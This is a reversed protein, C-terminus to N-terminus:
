NEDIKVGFYDESVTTCQNEKDRHLTYTKAVYAQIKELDNETTIETNTSLLITQHALDPFYNELIADRSEKDMVGMVTDIMVPPNYDGLEYLVKLLVQMLTQKAGANLQSLYIENGKIHYMKFTIEDSNGSSLEVRGIVGSYVVLNKNLQECMMREISSKKSRLLTESLNKFFEPLKCLLDYSPDPIQPIDYDYTAIKKKLIEIEEGKQRKLEKLENIRASNKEYAEIFSYDKGNLMQEYNQLTERQKPLDKIEQNLRYRQEDLAIFPNGLASNVLDKLRAMDRATLFSFKDDVGNGQEQKQKMARILEPVDVEEDMTYREEILKVLSQTFSEIQADTFQNARSQAAMEKAHVIMEIEASLMSALKPYIVKTEIDKSLADMNSVYNKESELTTGISEQIRRIKDRTTDDANHGEKLQTYQESYENAFELKESYEEDMKDVENEMDRLNATLKAYEQRLNENAMKEAKKEDLLSEAIRKMESYKKLGMVSDINKMILKNIQEEKVLESTKMADFLFYNSLERPLNAAIIKNIVEEQQARQTATSACGYTFHSGNMDLDISWQVKGQEMRYIRKLKYMTERGLVIGTFTIEFVINNGEIGKEVKVGDNLIECFETAGLEKKGWGYLAHYIADFLTTKGCGNGGGILIIPREESVDLDLDLLRYTKYNEIHIKSIKM